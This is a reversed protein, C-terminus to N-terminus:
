SLVAETGKGKDLTTLVIDQFRFELAPDWGNFDRALYLPELLLQRQLHQKNVHLLFAERINSGSGASGSYPGGPAGAGILDPNVSFAFLVESNAAVSAIIDKDITTKNELETIKVRDFEKRDHSTSFYSVFAKHANETGSLYKTFNEVLEGRKAKKEEVTYTEWETGYLNQFYSNPVEIHYKINFANEYLAKFLEPTKIAIELWGNRRVADWGALSYYPSNRSYNQIPLIFNRKDPYKKLFAQLSEVPSLPNLVKINKIKDKNPITDGVSLQDVQDVASIGGAWYKSLCGDEKIGDSNMEYYRFDMAEQPNLMTIKDGGANLIIEPFANAYTVWDNMTASYFRALRRNERMFQEVEPYEGPQAIDFVEKGNKYEVVKGWYIGQGFQAEVKFEIASQAVGSYSLIYSIRQPFLNDIGWPIIKGTGPAGGVKLNTGNNAPAARSASYNGSKSFSIVTAHDEIIFFDSM